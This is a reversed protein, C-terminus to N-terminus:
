GADVQRLLTAVRPCRLLRYYVRKGARRCAVVGARRLRGLQNSAAPLSRGAAEALDNVSVEARAALLLLLRLRTPESLVRFL